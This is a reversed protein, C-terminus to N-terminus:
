FMSGNFQNEHVWHNLDRGLETRKEDAQWQRRTKCVTHPELLGGTLPGQDRCVQQDMYPVEPTAIQPAASATTVAAPATTPATTATPPPQTASDAAQQAFAPTALAACFSITLILKSM